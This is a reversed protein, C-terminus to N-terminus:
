SEKSQQVAATLLSTSPEVEVVVMVVLLSLAFLAERREIANSLSLILVHLGFMALIIVWRANDLHLEGMIVELSSGNTFSADVTIPSSLQLTETPDSSQGPTEQVPLPPMGLVTSALVATLFFVISSHM